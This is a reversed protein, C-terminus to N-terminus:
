YSATREERRREEGRWEMGNWEMQAAGRRISQAQNAYIELNLPEVRGVSLRCPWPAASAAKEPIRCFLIVACPPNLIHREGIVHYVRRADM